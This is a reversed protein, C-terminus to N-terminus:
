VDGTILRIMAEKFSCNHLKQVWTFCDGGKSCGFCHWTQTEPFVMLSGTKENHFPCIGSRRTGCPKLHVTRNILEEIDTKSKIVEASATEGDKVAKPKALGLIYMLDQASRASDVRANYKKQWERHSHEYELIAEVEEDTDVKVETGVLSVFGFELKRLLTLPEKDPLDVLSQDLPPVEIHKIDDYTIEM